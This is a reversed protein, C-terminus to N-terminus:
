TRVEDMNEAGAESNPNTRQIIKGAGAAADPGSVPQEPAPTHAVVPFGKMWLLLAQWHIAAITKYTIPPSLLFHKLLGRDTLPLWRQRQTAAFEVCGNEDTKEIALRLRGGPPALHFRYEGDVRLFPSVHFMKRARQVPRHGDATTKTDLALLYGHCEGFTNSVDYLVAYLRGEADYCFYISLPNFVYGLVRPFTVLLVQTDSRFLGAALLQREVWAKLPSGDRPGYDRVRFSLFNARELSLLRLDGLTEELRDLDLVLSAIRYRFVHRIPTMRVHTTEGVYIGPEPPPLRSM